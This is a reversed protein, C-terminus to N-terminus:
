YGEREKISAGCVSIQCVLIPKLLLPLSNSIFGKEFSYNLLYAPSEMSSSIFINSAGPMLLQLM